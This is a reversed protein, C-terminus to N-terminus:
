NLGASKAQNGIRDVLEAGEKSKMLQDMMALLQSPDGGAAAEAAKQVGGQQRLMSMLKKADGSKALKSIAAKNQALDAAANKWSPEAKNKSQM